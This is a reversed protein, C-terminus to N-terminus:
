EEGAVELLEDHLRKAFLVVKRTALNKLAESDIAVFPGGVLVGVDLLQAISHVVEKRDKDFDELVATAGGRFDFGADGRAVVEM